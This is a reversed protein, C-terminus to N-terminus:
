KEHQKKLLKQSLEFINGAGMAVLVNFKKDKLFKYAEELDGIYQVKESRAAEVLDASKVNGKKERAGFIDVLYIFDAPIKKFTSVFDDFLVETRTYLHPQFVLALSQHPYIERLAKVTAEIESPHHGYDDFIEMGDVAGVKEMRRSLGKFNSLAFKIKKKEIGLLSSVMFVATANFLNHEGPIKLKLREPKTFTSIQSLEGELRMLLKQVGPDKANAVVITQKNSSIIFKEFSELISEFNPFFEPHDFDVNLVVAMDPKYHFFNNNFEDAEIVFYKGKGHRFNKSWELIRAGLLVTPDLRAQEMVYGLLATATSKGHTGSVAIVFKDKLLYEGVFSQWTLTLIGMQRAKAIEKNQPDYSLIAPSFVLINIGELHAPDHKPFLPSRTLERPLLKKELNIDCGSMQFGEKKAIAAAASCGSGAIGM